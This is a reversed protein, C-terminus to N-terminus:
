PRSRKSVMDSIDLTVLKGYSDDDTFKVGSKDVDSDTGSIKNRWLWLEWGSYDAATRQYHVTLKVTAPNSSSYAINLNTVCLTGVLMLSIFRRIKM